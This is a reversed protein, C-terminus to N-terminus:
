FGLQEELEAIKAKIIAEEKAGVGEALRKNLATIVLGTRYAGCGNVPQACLNEASIDPTVTKDNRAM